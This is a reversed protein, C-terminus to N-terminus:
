HVKGRWQGAGVLKEVEERMTRALAQAAKNQRLEKRMAICLSWSIGPRTLRTARLTGHAVEEAVASYTLVTHGIGHAVLAKIIALGEVEMIPPLVKGQAGLAGAVLQRLSNPASPLLLPLEALEAVGVGDRLPTGPPSVLYMEEDLLPIQVLDASAAPNHMLAVDSRSTVLWENIDGSFGETVRVTVNPCAQRYRLLVPPLLVRGAAPPVAVTLTGSAATACSSVDDRAQRMDRLITGAKELLMEGAATLTVGRGHRLFLKVGLEAELKHVQRSLAPQAIRLQAAAKSFSSLEAIAKFYRLERFEM